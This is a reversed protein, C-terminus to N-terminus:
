ADPWKTAQWHLLKWASGSRVWVTVFANTLVKTVGSVDLTTETKGNLIAADGVVRIQQESRRANLFLYKAAEISTLFAAKDDVRGNAHTHVYNEALLQELAATDRAYLAQYRSEDAALVQSEISSNMGTM